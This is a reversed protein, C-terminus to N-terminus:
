GMWGSLDPRFHNEAVTDRERAREVVRTTHAQLVPERTTIMAARARHAEHHLEDDVRTGRDEPSAENDQKGREATQEPHDTMRQPITLPALRDNLTERNLPRDQPTRSWTRPRPRVTENRGLPLTHSDLPLGKLESRYTHAPAGARRRKRLVSM